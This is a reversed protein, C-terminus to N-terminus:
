YGRILHEDKMDFIDGYAANALGKIAYVLNQSSGYLYRSPIFRVQHVAPLEALAPDSLFKERFAEAGYRDAERPEPALFFDPNAKVVLEKSLFEGNKLGAAAIGNEIRARTCLEDYMSGPGGYSQMQSILMGMPRRDTRSALVTDIEALQRDMEAVVKEGAAEERLAQAVLRIAAKAEEISDPGQCVLVPYGLERYTEVHDMAIWTPVIILDPATKIITELPISTFTYIKVPVKEAEEAFFSAQPDTDLINVAALHDPPVLGAVITDYTLNGTLIRQPKRPLYVATGRADIVTYGEDVADGKVNKEPTQCGALLLCVWLGLIWFVRRMWYMM